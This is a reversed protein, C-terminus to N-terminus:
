SVQIRLTNASNKVDTQDATLHRVVRGFGLAAGETVSGPFLKYSNTLRQILCHPRPRHSRTAYFLTASASNSPALNNKAGSRSSMRAPSGSSILMSSSRITNIRWGFRGRRALSTVSGSGPSEARLAPGSEGVIFLLSTSSIRALKGHDVYEILTKDSGLTVRTM